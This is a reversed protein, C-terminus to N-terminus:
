KKYLHKVLADIFPTQEYRVHKIANKVDFYEIKDIEPYEVEKGFELMKFKNSKFDKINDNPMEVAWARVVKGGRQVISGIDIADEKNTVPLDLNTEEKFERKACHWKSEEGDLVGKPISWGGLNKHTHYPGGPHALLVRFPSKVFALIGCALRGRKKKMENIINSLKIQDM